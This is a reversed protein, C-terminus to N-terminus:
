ILVSERRMESSASPSALVNMQLLVALAKIGAARRTVLSFIRRLVGVLGDPGGANKHRWVADFVANRFVLVPKIFHYPATKDGALHRAGDIVAHGDVRNRGAIYEPRCVGGDFEGTERGYVFFSAVVLLLLVCRRQRVELYALRQLKLVYFFLLFERLRGGPIRLGREDLGHLFRADAPRAGVRRGDRGYEVPLIDDLLPAIEARGRETLDHRREHLLTKVSM